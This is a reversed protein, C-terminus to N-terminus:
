RHHGAARSNRVTFQMSQLPDESSPVSIVAASLLAVAAMAALLLNKLSM